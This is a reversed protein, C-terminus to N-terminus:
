RQYSVEYLNEIALWTALWSEKHVLYVLYLARTKGLCCYTSNSLNWITDGGCYLRAMAPGNGNKTTPLLLAALLDSLYGLLYKSAPLGIALTEDDVM